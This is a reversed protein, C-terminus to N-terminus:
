KGNNKVPRPGVGDVPPATPAPPYKCTVFTTDHWYYITDDIGYYSALRKAEQTAEQQNMDKAVVYHWNAVARIARHLYRGTPTWPGTPEGETQKWVWAKSFMAWGSTYAVWPQWRRYDRRGDRIWPETWKRYAADINTHAVPMFVAEEKSDTRLSDEVSTGVQEAPINIQYLGCDRSVLEGDEDNDHWAGISLSSEAMATATAKVKENPWHPAVLAVHQRGMLTQGAYPM